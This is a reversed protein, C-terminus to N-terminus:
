QQSLAVAQEHAFPGHFSRSAGSVLYFRKARLLTIAHTAPHKLLQEEVERPYRGPPQVLLPQAPEAYHLLTDLVM